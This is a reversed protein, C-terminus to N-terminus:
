LLEMPCIFMVNGMRSIHFSLTYFVLKFNTVLNCLFGPRLLCLDNLCEASPSFDLRHEARWSSGLCPAIAVQPFPCRIRTVCPSLGSAMGDGLLTCRGEEEESVPARYALLLRLHSGSSGLELASYAEYNGSAGGCDLIEM